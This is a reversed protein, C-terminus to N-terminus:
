PRIETHAQRAQSGEISPVPQRSLHKATQRSPRRIAQTQKRPVPFPSVPALCMTAFVQGRDAYQRTFINDLGM